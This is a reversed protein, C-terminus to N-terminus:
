EHRFRCSFDKKLNQLLIDTMHWDQRVRAGPRHANNDPRVEILRGSGLEKEVSNTGSFYRSTADEFFM